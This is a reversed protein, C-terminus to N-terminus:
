SPVAVTAEDTRKDNATDVWTVAVKDGAKAGIKAASFSFALTPNKSVSPGWNASLVTKGNCTASINKVYHAPILKGAGDKRQGTEMEHSVVVRVEVVDGKLQARVKMPDAM